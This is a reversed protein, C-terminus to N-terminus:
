FNRGSFFLNQCFTKCNHRCTRTTEKRSSSDHLGPLGVPLPLNQVSGPLQSIFLYINKDIFFRISFNFFIATKRLFIFDREQDGKEYLFCQALTILCAATAHLTFVVDNLQVPIESTHHLSRYEQQVSPIFFVCM